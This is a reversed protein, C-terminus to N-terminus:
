RAASAYTNAGAQAVAHIFQPDRAVLARFSPADVANIYYNVSAASALQNNPVITGAGPPVFLEPGAEGVLIPRGAAVAGGGAFGLLKGIGAFLGGGGPAGGGGFTTAILQRIQSRLLDEVITNILSSFSLKGTKVFGVIADEMGRTADEFLKRAVTAGNRSDEIYQRMSTSWGVSFKENETINQRIVDRLNETARTAELTIARRKEESLLVKRGQDDYGLLKEEADIRAQAYDRAMITLQQYKQENQTMSTRDYQDLLLHAQRSIDVELQYSYASDRLAAAKQQELRIAAPVQKLYEDYLATVQQKEQQLQGIRADRAASQPTATEQAIRNNLDQIQNNYNRTLNVLEMEVQKQDESVGLMRTDLRIKNLIEDNTKRYAESLQDLQVIEKQWAPTVAPQDKRTGRAEDLKQQNKVADDTRKKDNEAISDNLKDWGLYAAGAAAIMVAVSAIRGFVTSKELVASAGALAFMGETIKTLAGGFEVLLIVTRAGFYTVIAAGAIAVVKEFKVMDDNMGNIADTIGTIDMLSVFALLLKESAAALKDHAQGARELAGTFRMYEETGGRAGEAVGAWDIKMADKGFVRFALAQRETVDSMSALKEIVRGFAEETNLNAMDKFSLGLKIFNEQAVASGERADFLSQSLKNIIRYLRDASGGNAEFAERLQIIKPISVNTAASLDTITDAMELSRKAFEVAGAGLLVATLTEMKRQLAETANTMRTFGTVTNQSTLDAQKGFREVNNTAGTLKGNFETDNLVLTVSLDAM